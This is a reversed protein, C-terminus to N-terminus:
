AARPLPEGDPPPAFCLAHRRLDLGNLVLELPREDPYAAWREISIPGLCRPCAITVM